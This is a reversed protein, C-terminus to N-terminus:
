PMVPPTPVTKPWRSLDRQSPQGPPIVGRGGFPAGVGGARDTRARSCGAVGREPRVLIVYSRGDTTAEFRDTASFGLAEVVRLARANFAPSPSGSRPRAAIAPTRVGPRDLDRAPGTGPRDARAALGGGTDLASSDYSGGPVQGDPGFSRFGILVDDDTLAFFGNEEDVLFGPDVETM